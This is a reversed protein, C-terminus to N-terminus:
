ARARDVHARDARVGDARGPRGRREAADRSARRERDSLEGQGIREDGSVRASDRVPRRGRDPLEEAGRQGGRPRAGEAPPRHMRGEGAPRGWEEREVDERRVRRAAEDRERVPPEHDRTM